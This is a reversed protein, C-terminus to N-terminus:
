NFNKLAEIISKNRYSLEEGKLIGSNIVTTDISMWEDDSGPDYPTWQWESTSPIYRYYILWDFWSEPSCYLYGVLHNLSKLEKISYVKEQIKYEDGVGSATNVDMTTSNTTLSFSEFLEVLGDDNFIDDIIAHIDAVDLNHKSVIHSRLKLESCVHNFLRSTSCGPNLSVIITDIASGSLCVLVQYFKLSMYNLFFLLHSEIYRQTNVYARLKTSATIIENIDNLNVEPFIFDIGGARYVTMKLRNYTPNTVISGDIKQLFERFATIWKAQNGLVIVAGFSSAQM